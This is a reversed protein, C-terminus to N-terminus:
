WVLKSLVEKFVEVPQAGVIKYKGNIIFTPV